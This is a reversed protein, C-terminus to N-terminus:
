AIDLRVDKKSVQDTTTVSITSIASLRVVLFDPCGSEISTLTIGRQRLTNEDGLMYSHPLEPDKPFVIRLVRPISVATCLSSTM